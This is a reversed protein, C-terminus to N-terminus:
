YEDKKKEIIEYYRRYINNRLNEKLPVNIKEIKIEEIKHFSSANYVQPTPKTYNVILEMYDDKINSIVENLLQQYAEIQLDKDIIKGNLERIEEQLPERAKEYETKKSEKIIEEIEEDSYKNHKLHVHVPAIM